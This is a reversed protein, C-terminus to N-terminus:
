PQAISRGKLCKSEKGGQNQHIQVSSSISEGHVGSWLSTHTATHSLWSKSKVCGWLQLCPDQNKHKTLLWSQRV